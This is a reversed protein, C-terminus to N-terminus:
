GSIEGRFHVFNIGYDGYLFPSPRFVISHLLSVSSCPSLTLCYKRCLFLAQRFSILAPRGGASSRLHKSPIRQIRQVPAGQFSSGSRYPLFLVTWSRSARQLL